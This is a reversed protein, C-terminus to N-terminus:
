TAATAAGALAPASLRFAASGLSRPSPVSPMAAAPAINWPGKGDLLATSAALAAALPLSFDGCAPAPAAPVGPEPWGGVIMRFLTPWLSVLTVGPSGVPAIPFVRKM